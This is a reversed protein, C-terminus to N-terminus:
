PWERRRPRAPWLVGSRCRRAFSRIARGAPSITPPPTPPPTCRITSANTPWCTTVTVVGRGTKGVSGLHQTGVHATAKGDKRDGFDDVVLVGGGHPATALDTPLLQLRRANVAEQTGPRSPSSSSCGSCRRM